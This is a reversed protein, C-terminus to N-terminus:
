GLRIATLTSALKATAALGTSVQLRGKFTTTSSPSRIAVALAHDVAVGSGPSLQWPIVAVSSGGQDLILNGSANADNGVGVALLILWTGAALSLSLSTIDTTTAGPCTQDVLNFASSTSPALKSPPISGALKEPPISGTLLKTGNIEADSAINGDDLDGNVVEKIAEDNAFVDSWLNDGETNEDSPLIIDTM